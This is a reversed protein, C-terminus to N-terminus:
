PRWSEIVEICEGVSGGREMTNAVETLLARHERLLCVVSLAAWRKTMEIDKKKSGLVRLFAELQLMDTDGGETHDFAVYEAAIGGLSIAAYREIAESSVKGTVRSKEFEPDIMQTGAQVNLARYRRFTELSSLTYRQPLVGLLYATLLHGAEHMSVRKKYNANFANAATDGILVGLGGSAAVQDVFALFLTLLGIQFWREFDVFLAAVYAIGVASVLRQQVDRKMKDDPHLMDDLNVRFMREEYDTYERRPLLRAKGYRELVGRSAFATATEAARQADKNKETALLRDFVGVAERLTTVNSAERPIKDLSAPTDTPSV